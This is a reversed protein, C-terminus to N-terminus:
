DEFNVTVSLFTLNLPVSLFFCEAVKSNQAICLMLPILLVNRYIIDLYIYGRLLGPVLSGPFYVLVTYQLLFTVLIIWIKLNSLVSIPM